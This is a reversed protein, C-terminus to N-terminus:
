FFSFGYDEIPLKFSYFDPEKVSLVQLTSLM